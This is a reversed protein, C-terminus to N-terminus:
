RRAAGSRPRSPVGPRDSFGRRVARIWHRVLWRGVWGVLALYVLAAGGLLVAAVLTRNVILDLEYLRYRLAAVAISIPILSTAAAVLWWPAIPVAILVTVVAIGFLGIQRRELGDARLFRLVLTVLALLQLAILFPGAIAQATALLGSLTSAGYPNVVNGFATSKGPQLATVALGVGLFAYSLALLLSWRRTLPRGYPVVQPLVLATLVLPPFWTWTTLWIATAIPGSLQGDPPAELLRGADFGLTFASISVSTVYAAASAGVALLLWGMPRAGRTGAVLVAGAVSFALGIVPEPSRFLQVVYPPEAILSLALAGGVAVAAATGLLVAVV